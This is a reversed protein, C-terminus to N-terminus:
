ATREWIYVAQYPPLNNHPQNNGFNMYFGDYGNNGTYTGAGHGENRKLPHFVGAAGLESINPDQFAINWVDGTINPLESETLTHAAEGGTTGAGYTSGAALLFKDQIQRWTGGFLTNPDINKTTMYISGVPYIIDCIREYKDAITALANAIKTQNALNPITTSIDAM